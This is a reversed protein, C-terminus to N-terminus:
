DALTKGCVCSTFQCLGNWECAFYVGLHCCPQSTISIPVQFAGQHFSALNPSGKGELHDCAGEGVCRLVQWPGSDACKRGFVSRAGGAGRQRYGKSAVPVSCYEGCCSFINIAAIRAPPPLSPFFCLGQALFM